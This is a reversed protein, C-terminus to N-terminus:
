PRIEYTVWHTKKAVRDYLRRARANDEATIWRVARWGRRQAEEVVAQILAEGLRTGRAEPLVFLDDLFCIDAGRLPSPMRRYHTLGLLDGEPAKAIFGEVPHAPDHLWSWVRGALADDMPMRYFEAYLGFLRRWGPRDAEAPRSIRATMSPQARKRTRDKM